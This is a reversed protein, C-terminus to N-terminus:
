LPTTFRIGVGIRVRSRLTLLQHYSCRAIASLETPKPLSHWSDYADYGAHRGLLCFPLKALHNGCKAVLSEVTSTRPNVLIAPYVNTPSSSVIGTASSHREFVLAPMDNEYKGSLVETLHFRRRNRGLGYLVQFPIPSMMQDAPRLLLGRKWGAQVASEMPEQKIPAQPLGREEIVAVPHVPEVIMLGPLREKKGRFRLSDQRNTRFRSAEVDLTGALEDGAAASELAARQKLPDSYYRPSRSPNEPIANEGIPRRVEVDPFPFLLGSEIRLAIVPFEAISKCLPQRAIEGM